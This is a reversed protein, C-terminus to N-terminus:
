GRRTGDALCRARYGHSRHRALRRARASLAADARAGTDAVAGRGHRCRPGSQRLLYIALRLNRDSLGWDDSRGGACLNRDARVAVTRDAAAAKAVQDPGLHLGHPHARRRHVGAARAARDNTRSRACVRLRHLIGPVPGHQRDPLPPVLLRSQSLRDASHRHDRRHSLGHLDLRRQRSRDRDWGRHVPAICQYDPHEAGGHLRWPARRAGDGLRHLQSSRGTRALEHNCGARDRDQARAHAIEICPQPHCWV